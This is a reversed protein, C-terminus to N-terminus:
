QPLAARLQRDVVDAGPKRVQAVNQTQRGVDHFEIQAERLLDGAIWGALRERRREDAPGTTHARRDDGLSDRAVLIELEQAGEADVVALPVVKGPGRGQKEVSRGWAVPAEQRLRGHCGRSM